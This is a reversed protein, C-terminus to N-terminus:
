CPSVLLPCLKNNKRRGLGGPLIHPQLYMKPSIKSNCKIDYCNSRTILAEEFVVSRTHGHFSCAITGRSRRWCIRLRPFFHATSIDLTSRRSLHTLICYLIFCLMYVMWNGIVSVINQIIWLNENFNSNIVGGNAVQRRWECSSAEM